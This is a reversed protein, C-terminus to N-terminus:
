DASAPSRAAPSRRVIIDGDDELWARLVRSRLEESPLAPNLLPSDPSM